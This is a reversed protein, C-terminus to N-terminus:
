GRVYRCPLRVTWPPSDPPPVPIEAVGAPGSDLCSPRARDLGDSWRPGHARLNDVRLNVACVVALLAALALLPAASRGVVAGGAPQLVAVLATVLLMAPAVAYRPTAVGSLVVPLVYLAVSHVAASLALPWAPRVLRAWVLVAVGALILWALAALVLTGGGVHTGVWRQGLLADPVARVAYGKLARLPNPSLQRSSSGTLLGAVQVAVGLGLLAALVIGHRDRTGDRGRRAARVLALPLYAVTLIDSAVVLLVTVAAVTRGGRGRPSWILVWFLAYLGYWHLNAVSNLVDDQGLPVLVVIASVLARSLPSALHGASAAYVLVAVLATVLAASTALVAAAAGAPAQAALGALLRPVLHFYGAYSRGVSAVSGHVAADTLFIGGDEAWVTDLAGAGPQRLLGVATGGAVALVALPVARHRRVTVAPPSAFLRQTGIRTGTRLRALTATTV